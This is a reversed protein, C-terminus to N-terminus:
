FKNRGNLPFFNLEKLLVFPSDRVCRFPNVLDSNYDNYVEMVTDPPCGFLVYGGGGFVEVYRRYEEPM